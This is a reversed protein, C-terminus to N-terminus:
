YLTRTYRATKDNEFKLVYEGISSVFTSEIASNVYKKENGFFVPEHLQVTKKKYFQSKIFEITKIFNSM